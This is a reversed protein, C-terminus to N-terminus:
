RGLNHLVQCFDDEYLIMELRFDESSLFGKLAKELEDMYIDLDGSIYDAYFSFVSKILVFQVHLLICGKEAKVIEYGKEKFTTYFRHVADRMTALTHNSLDRLEPTKEIEDNFLAVMVQTLHQDTENTANM